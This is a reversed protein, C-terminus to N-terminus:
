NAAAAAAAEAPQPPPLLAINHHHEWGLTHSFSLPTRCLHHYRSSIPLCLSCCPLTILLYIPTPPITWLEIVGPVLSFLATASLFCHLSYTLLHHALPRCFPFLTRREGLASGSHIRSNLSSGCNHEALAGEVDLCM